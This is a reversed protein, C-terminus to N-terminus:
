EDENHEQRDEVQRRPMKPTTKASHNAEMAKFFDKSTEGKALVNKPGDLLPEMEPREGSRCCCLFSGM